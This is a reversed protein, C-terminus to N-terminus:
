RAADISVKAFEADSASSIEGPEAVLRLTQARCNGGPVNFQSSITIDQPGFKEVPMRHVEPGEPYCTVAWFMQGPPLASRSRGTLQLRYRGPALALQQEALVATSGGYYQARLRADGAGLTVMDARGVDLGHLKWAFEGTAAPREFDGNFLYRSEARQAEPLTGLWRERALDPRGSAFLASVYLREEQSTPEGRAAAQRLLDYAVDPPIKQARAANFFDAKWPPNGALLQAVYARGGRLRLLKVMEPLLAIRAREDMRLTIDLEAAMEPGRGASFYYSVLYIRVPLSSPNRRRAEEMLQLALRRDGRQDAARGAIFYPAFDLPDSEAAQRALDITAEDVKFSPNAAIGTVQRLRASDNVPPLSEAVAPTM